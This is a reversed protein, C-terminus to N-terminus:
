EGVKEIERIRHPPYWKPGVSFGREYIEHPMRDTEVKFPKTLNTLYVRYTYM